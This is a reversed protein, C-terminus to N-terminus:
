MIHFDNGNNTNTLIGLRNVMITSELLQNQKLFEFIRYEVSIDDNIEHKYNEYFAKMYRYRLAYLFTYQAPFNESKRIVAVINDNSINKKVITIFSDDMILYRGSVKIIFVNDNIFSVNHLLRNISICERTSKNYADLEGKNIKILTQFPFLKFPPCDNSNEEDIESLVGIVPYSYYFIKHLSFTYEIYREKKLIPNCTTISDAGTVLFIIPSDM